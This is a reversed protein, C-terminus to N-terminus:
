GRIKRGASREQRTRCAMPPPSAAEPFLLFSMSPPLLVMRAPMTRCTTTRAAKPTM